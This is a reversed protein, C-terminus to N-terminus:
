RPGPRGPLTDDAPLDPNFGCAWREKAADWYDRNVALACRDQGWTIWAPALAARAAEIASAIQDTLRALFPEILM